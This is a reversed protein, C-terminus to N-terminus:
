RRSDHHTFLFHGELRVKKGKPFSGFHRILCLHNWCQNGLLFSFFHRSQKLTWTKWLRSNDDVRLHAIPLSPTARRPSIERKRIIIRHAIQCRCGPVARLKRKMHKEWLPKRSWEPKAFSKGGFRLPNKAVDSRRTIQVVIWSCWHSRWRRTTSVTKRCEFLKRVPASFTRRSASNKM